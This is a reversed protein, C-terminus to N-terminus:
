PVKPASDAPRPSASLFDDLDALRQPTGIDWWHGQFLEGSLGGSAIASQMLPKLARQGQALGRFMSPRWVSIGSFTHRPGLDDETVLGADTLAFDGSPHHPPNEILVLHAAQPRCNLLCSFDFDTWVDGNVLLFPADDDSDLYPLAQVIGGATELPQEERSLHIRLGYGNASGLYDQVQDALWSCNVVVESVGAAALNALHFDILPRGGARLLPKPCHDTLPRMRAGLGAALIMAKM